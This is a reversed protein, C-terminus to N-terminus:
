FAYLISLHYNGNDLDFRKKIKVGYDFRIPGIPTFIQVGLGSSFAISLPTIDSIRWYTNGADLFASGGIIWFLPRRLEINALILYKGGKPKGLNDGPNDEETYVPGLTNELYGRVTTGGGILFRDDSGSRGNSGMESLFGLWFRTALVSQEGLGQFRSTSFQCKFYSYDGGLFGGVYNMEVFSYSGTRPVFINGRTDREGYFSIKRRIQNDGEARYFEEQDSPVNRINVYEASTSLRAVTFRDLERSLIIEGAVLDYRYGLVPNLTYPEYTAKLNFVVRRNFLWPQIYNVDTTTRLTKFQLKRRLDSFQLSTLSGSPDTIQFRPKFGFILKRGTGAINRLGWQISSRLVMEFNEERGIGIGGNIFQSKREKLTLNLNVKCTDNSASATDPCVLSSDDRSLSVYRFLGTSYIRQESEIMEKRSYIRGPKNLIERTIVYKRTLGDFNMATSANVTPRAPEIKYEVAAKSSDQNFLYSSQIKNFPYGHDAYIDRLNFGGSLVLEANVPRQLKFQSLTKNFNSNIDPFGGSLTVSTLTVQKGENVSFKILVGNDEYDSVAADVTVFLFGRREFYRKIVGLDYLVSSKSYRRKKLFSYWHNEKSFLYSKIHSESFSKVGEFQIKKVVPRKSGFQKLGSTDLESRATSFILLGLVLSINTILILTSRYVKM